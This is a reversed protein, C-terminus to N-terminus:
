KNQIGAKIKERPSLGSTDPGSREPAGAPIITEKLEAELRSKIGAALENVKKISADVEAITSGTILDETFTPNSSVTLKRYATVAEDYGMKIVGFDQVQTDLTKKAESLETDKSTLQGELETVRATLAQEAESLETDKSTLQGELETVRATLAQEAESVIPPDAPTEEAAAPKQTEEAAPDAKYEPSEKSM